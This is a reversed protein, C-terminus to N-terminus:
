PSPRFAISSGITCVCVCVLLPPVALQPRPVRCPKCVQTHAVNFTAASAVCAASRAGHTGMPSTHAAAAAQAMNSVHPGDVVCWHRISGSRVVVRRRSAGRPTAVRRRRLPVFGCRGLAARLRMRACVVGHHIRLTHTQRAALLRRAEPPVLAARTRQTAKHTGNRTAPEHACAPHKHDTKEVIFRVPLAVKNCTGSCTSAVMSCVALTRSTTHTACAHRASCARMTALTRQVQAANRGLVSAKRRACRAGNQTWQRASTAGPVCGSRAHM